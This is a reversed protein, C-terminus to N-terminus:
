EGEDKKKTESERKRVIPKVRTEDYSFFLWCVTEFRFFIMWNKTKLCNNRISRPLCSEPM